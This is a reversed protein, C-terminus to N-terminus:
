RNNKTNIRLFNSHLLSLTLLATIILIFDSFRKLLFSDSLRDKLRARQRANLNFAEQTDRKNVLESRKEIKLTKKKPVIGRNEDIIIHSSSTRFSGFLEKNRREIKQGEVFNSIRVINNTVWFVSFFIVLVVLAVFFHLSIKKFRSKKEEELIISDHRCVLFLVVMSYIALIVILEKLNEYSTVALGLFFVTVLYSLILSIASNIRTKVLLLISFNIVVFLLVVLLKIDFM